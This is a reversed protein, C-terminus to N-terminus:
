HSRGGRGGTRSLCLALRRTQAGRGAGARLLLTTHYPQLVGLTDAPLTDKQLIQAIQEKEEPTLPTGYDKGFLRLLTGLDPSLSNAIAVQQKLFKRKAGGGGNAVDEYVFLKCRAAWSEAATNDGTALLRESALQLNKMDNPKFLPRLIVTFSPLPTDLTGPVVLPEEEAGKVTIKGYGCQKFLSLREETFVKHYFELTTLDTFEGKQNMVLAVHKRGAEHRAVVDIFKTWSDFRHAYGSNLSASDYNPLSDGEKVGLADFIDQRLTADELHLLYSPCCDIRSLPAQLRDPDLFVGSGEQLGMTVGTYTKWESSFLLKCANKFGEDLRNEKFPGELITRDKFDFYTSSSYSGNELFGFRPGTLKLRYDEEYEKTTYSPRVPGLILLDAQVTEHLKGQRIQLRTRDLTAAFPEVEEFKQTEVIWDCFFNPSSKQLFRIVKAAASLDGKGGQVCTILTITKIHSPWPLDRYLRELLRHLYFLSFPLSKSFSKSEMQKQTVPGDWKLEIPISGIPDQSTKLRISM